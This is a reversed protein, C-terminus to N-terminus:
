RAHMIGRKFCQSPIGAVHGKGNRRALEPLRNFGHKGEPQAPQVDRHGMLFTNDFIKIIKGFLRTKDPRDVRNLDQVPLQDTVIGVAPSEDPRETVIRTKIGPFFGYQKDTGAASRPSDTEAESQCPLSCQM